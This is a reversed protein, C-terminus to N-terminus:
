ILETNPGTPEIVFHDSISKFTLIWFVMTISGVVAGILLASDIIMVILLFTSVPTLIGFIISSYGAYQTLKMDATADAIELFARGAIVFTVLYVISAVVSGVFHNYLVVFSGVSIWIGIFLSYYAWALIRDGYQRFLGNFGFAVLVWGILLVMNTMLVFIAEPISDLLATFPTMLISILMLISGFFGFRINQSILKKIGISHEDFEGNDM